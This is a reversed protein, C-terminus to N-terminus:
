DLLKVYNYGGWNGQPGMEVRKKEQNGDQKRYTKSHKRVEM